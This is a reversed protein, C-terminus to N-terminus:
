TTHTTDCIRTDHCLTCPMGRLHCLTCAFSLAHPMGHLHCLWVRDNCIVCHARCAVTRLHCLWVRDNQTDHCLTCPMGRLHCLTCPMGHLHCLTCPMGRHARLHCICSYTTSSIAAINHSHHWMQMLWPVYWHHWLPVRVHSSKHTYTQLYSSTHILISAVLQNTDTYRPTVCAHTQDHNSLWSVYSHTVGHTMDCYMDRTVCVCVCVCTLEQWSGHSTHILWTVYSDHWVHM